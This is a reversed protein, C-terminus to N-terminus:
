ARRRAVADGVWSGVVPGICVVAVLWVPGIIWNLLFKQWIGALIYTVAAVIYWFWEERETLRRSGRFDLEVDSVAPDDATM